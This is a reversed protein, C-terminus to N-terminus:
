ENSFELCFVFSSKLYHKSFDCTTCYSNAACINKFHLLLPPSFQLSALPDLFVFHSFSLGQHVLSNFTQILDKCQLRSNVLPHQPASHSLGWPVNSLSGQDLQGEEPAMPICVHVDAYWRAMWFLPSIKQNAVIKVPHLDNCPIFHTLCAFM